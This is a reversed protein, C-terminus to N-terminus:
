GSLYFSPEASLGQGTLKSRTSDSKTV